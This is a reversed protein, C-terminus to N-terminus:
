KIETGQGSQRILDFLTYPDCYQTTVGKGVAYENFNTVITKVDRPTSLVTRYAAFNYEKMRTTLHNYLVSSDTDAYVGNQCYLYPTGEYVSLMAQTSNTLNGVSSFQNYCAAVEKPVTTVQTNIIFGTIDLDFREYFTKCYNAWAERGDGNQAPRPSGMLPMTYGEVLGSPMIYGAGSNGAAFFDMNTKNEYIYDFVMPIRYSLNPNYCWMLPLTGRVKDTGKMWMDYVYTKTWAASDYDGLYITYYYVNEDFTQKAPAKTNQYKNYKPVYKYYVSANALSDVDADKALNYCTITESLLWEAYAPALSGLNGKSTYKCWWPIFGYLQGFAGGAKDYRAQLIKKFTVVDEGKNALGNQQAPDDCAAEDSKVALDFFFCRRAIFYDHNALNNNGGMLAVANDAYADYGKITIAGDIVYAMHHASCRPFYKELAWLYADNKASGTSSLNTGSIKQGKNGDQFLDVLSLKEEVGDAKLFEHLPSNALVPLYGDLGCITAAVNATAPVNGDWLVMGCSHITDRFVQYFADFSRLTVKTMKEEAMAFVSTDKTIENFWGIDEQGQSIYLLSTHNSDMGFDRNVLGQLSYFLRAYDWDVKSNENYLASTVCYYITQEKHSFIDASFSCDATPDIEYAGNVVNTKDYNLIYNTNYIVGAKFVDLKEVSKKLIDLADKANIVGDATVDGLITQQETFCIKQVSVKLVELADKANIQQDFNVDGYYVYDVGYEGSPDTQALVPPIVSCTSFMLIILLSCIVRKM